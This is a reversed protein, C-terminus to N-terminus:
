VEPGSGPSYECADRGENGAATVVVVGSDFLMKVADNDAQSYDGGLSISAVAPKTHNEAVWEFGLDFSCLM